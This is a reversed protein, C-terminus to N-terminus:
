RCFQAEGRFGTSDLARQFRLDLWIVLRRRPKRRGNALHFIERTLRSNTWNSRGRVFECRKVDQRPPRWDVM